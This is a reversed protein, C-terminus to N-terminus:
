HSRGEYNGTGRIKVLLLNECTFTSCNVPGYFEVCPQELPRGATRATCLWWETHSPSVHVRLHIPLILLHIYIHCNSERISILNWFLMEIQLFINLTSFCNLTHDPPTLTVSYIFLLGSLWISHSFHFPGILTGPPGRSLQRSGHLHPM